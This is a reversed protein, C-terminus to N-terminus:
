ESLARTTAFAVTLVQCTDKRKAFIAQESVGPRVAHPVLSVDATFELRKKILYHRGAVWKGPKDEARIGTEKADETVFVV